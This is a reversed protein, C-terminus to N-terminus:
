RPELISVIASINISCAWNGGESSYSRSMSGDTSNTVSGSFEFDLDAYNRVDFRAVEPITVKSGRYKLLRQGFFIHRLLKEM